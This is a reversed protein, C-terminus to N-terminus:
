EAPDIGDAALPAVPSYRVLTGLCMTGVPVSSCNVNQGIARYCNREQIWPPNLSKAKKREWGSRFKKRGANKRRQKQALRQNDILPVPVLPLSQTETRAPSLGSGEADTGTGSAVSEGCGCPLRACWVAFLVLMRCYISEM